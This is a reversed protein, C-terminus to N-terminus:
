FRMGISISTTTLTCEDIDEFFEDTFSSGYRVGVSWKDLQVTAGIHWGLWFRKLTSDGWEDEDFLSAEEEESDIGDIDVEVVQKGSLNLQAKIGVYPMITIDDKLALKYGLNVPVYLSTINTKSTIKYDYGEYSGSEKDSMTLLEFGAGWELFVPMGEVVNSGSVYEISYGEFDWDDMDYSSDFELTTPSYSVNISTWGDMSVPNSLLNSLPNTQASVMLSFLLVSATLIGKKM